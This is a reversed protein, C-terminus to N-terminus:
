LTPLGCLSGGGTCHESSSAVKVTCFDLVYLTLGTIFPLVFLLFDHQHWTSKTNTILSCKAETTKRGIAWLSLRVMLFVASLDWFEWPRGFLSLRFFQHLWSSVLFVHCPFPFNIRSCSFSMLFSSIRM